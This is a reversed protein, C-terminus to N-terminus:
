SPSWKKSATYTHVTSFLQFAFIKNVYCAYLVIIKNKKKKEEKKRERERESNKLM